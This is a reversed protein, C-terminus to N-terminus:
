LIQLVTRAILHPTQEYMENQLLFNARPLRRWQLWRGVGNAVLLQLFADVLTAM